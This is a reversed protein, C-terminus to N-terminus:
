MTDDREKEVHDDDRDGHAHHRAHQLNGCFGFALASQRTAGFERLKQLEDGSATSDDCFCQERSSPLGFHRRVLQHTITRM